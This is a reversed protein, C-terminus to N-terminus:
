SQIELSVPSLIHNPNDAFPELFNVLELCSSFEQFIYAQNFLCDVKIQIAIEKFSSLLACTLDFVLLDVQSQHLQNVFDIFSM